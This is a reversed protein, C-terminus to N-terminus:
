FDNIYWRCASTGTLYSPQGRLGKMLTGVFIAVVATEQGLEYVKDGDFETARAGALSLNVEMGSFVYFFSSDTGCNKKSYSWILM